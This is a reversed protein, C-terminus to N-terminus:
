VFPLPAPADIKLVAVDSEADRGVIRATYQKGDALKVTVEDAQGERDLSIVHNNTVIFGDSSIIFGSGVAQALKTQEAGGSQMAAFPNDSKVKVTQRVAINVVAPQLQQTLDAFSVPAGSRPVLSQMTGAENQAVQAALPIGSVLSLAAGGLLFASTVGYAYKM